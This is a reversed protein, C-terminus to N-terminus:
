QEHSLEEIMVKRIISGRMFKKAREFAKLAEEKDQFKDARDKSMSWITGKIWFKAGNNEVTVVFM